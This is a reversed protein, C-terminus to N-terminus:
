QKKAIIEDFLPVLKSDPVKNNDVLYKVVEYVSIAGNSNADYDAIDTECDVYEVGLFNMLRIYTEVEYEDYVSYPNLVVSVEGTEADYKDLSYKGYSEVTKTVGQANTVETIMRIDCEYGLEEFYDLNLKYTLRLGIYDTVRISFGEFTILEQEITKKDIAEYKTTGVSPDICACGTCEWSNEGNSTFTAPYKEVWDYKHNGTAQIPEQSGVKDCGPCVYQKIGMFGCLAEMFTIEKTFEHVYTPAIPINEIVAPCDICNSRAVGPTSCTPPVVTELNGPTHGWEDHPLTVVTERECVPCISVTRGDQTCTAPVYKNDATEPLYYNEEIVECDHVTLNIDHVKAANGNPWKASDVKIVIRNVRTGGKLAKSMDMKKPNNLNFEQFGGTSFTATKEDDAYFFVSYSAWNSTALFEGKTIYYTRDLLIEVTTGTPAYWYTSIDNDFMRWADEVALLKEGETTVDPKYLPDSTDYNVDLDDSSNKVDFAITTTSYKLAGIKADRTEGCIRCTLRELGEVGVKAPTIVEGDNWDHGTAQKSDATYSLTCGTDSCKYITYGADTCSPPVVTGSDWNHGTAPIDFDGTSGCLECTKTLIGNATNTAENGELIVGENWQHFGTAPVIQKIVKGCHCSFEKYGSEDCTPNASDTMEFLHEGTEVMTEIEWMYESGSHKGNFMRFEIMAAEVYPDIKAELGSVSIDKSDYVLEGDINYLLIQVMSNNYVYDPVPTNYASLTGKGNCYFTIESFLYEKPFSMFFSYQGGKPSHTGFEKNGDVLAAWDVAWWPETKENEPTDPDDERYSDFSFEASSAINHLQVDCLDVGVMAYTEVEWLYYASSHPCDENGVTVVIQDAMLSKKIHWETMKSVDKTETYLLKGEKYFSATLETINYQVDTFTEGGNLSNKNALTGKGNCVLVIDTFYFVEDYDFIYSFTRTRPSKTGSEKNGDVLVETRVSGLINDGEISINAQNAVNTAQSSINESADGFAYTTFLPLIMLLSLMVALFKKM